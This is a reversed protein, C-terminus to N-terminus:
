AMAPESSDKSAARLAGKRAEAAMIFAAYSWTLNKASAQRGTTRDFQESLEGSPPTCRQIMTLVQDGKRLFAAALDQRETNRALAKDPVPGAAWRRFAGEDLLSASAAAGSRIAIALRYYFEALALTTMYYAGGGYYTDGAYRGMAPGLGAPRAENIPYETEFLEELRQVTRHVKIDAVSFPGSPLGGHIVALLTAADLFKRPTLGPGPLRSRYIGDEDSWHECLAVRLSEAGAEYDAARCADGEAAAWAAGAALAAHQMLRTYFHFGLEEEWIDICPERWHRETFDLDIRLLERMIPRMAPPLHLPWYRLITLARLAPGDHQPRPWRIMDLSGDPNYRTEGLVREGKIALLETESRLYRLSGPEVKARISGFDAIESGNLDCLARSFRLYAHVYSLAAPPVHGSAILVRLADIALAADRIWHFFYDPDPDYSAVAPSALVSGERPVITQGFAKRTRVLTTASISAVLATASLRYQRDIWAELPSM